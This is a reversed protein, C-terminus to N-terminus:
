RGVVLRSWSSLSTTLLLFSHLLSISWPMSCDCSAQVFSASTSSSSSSTTSMPSFSASTSCLLSHTTICSWSALLAAAITSALSFTKSMMAFTTDSSSSRLGSSGSQLPGPSIKIGRMRPPGIQIFVLMSALGAGPQGTSFCYSV